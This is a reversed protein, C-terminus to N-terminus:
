QGERKAGRGSRGPHETHVDGYIRQGACLPVHTEAEGTIDQYESVARASWRDLGWGFRNGPQSRPEVLLIEHDNLTAARSHPFSAASLPTIPTSVRVSRHRNSAWARIVMSKAGPSMMARSHM